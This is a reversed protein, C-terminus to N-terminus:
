CTAKQHYCHFTDKTFERYVAQSVKKLALTICDSVIIYWCIIFWSVKQIIKLEQMILSKMYFTVCNIWFKIYKIFCAQLEFIDPPWKQIAIIWFVNSINVLKHSIDRTNFCIWDNSWIYKCTNPTLHGKNYTSHIYSKCVSLTTLKKTQVSLLDNIM